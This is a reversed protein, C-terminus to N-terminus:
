IKSNLETKVIFSHGAPYIAFFQNRPKVKRNLKSKLPLILDQKDFVIGHMWQMKYRGNNLQDIKEQNEIQKLKVMLYHEEIDNKAQQRLYGDNLSIRM